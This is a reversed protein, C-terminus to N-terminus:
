SALAYDFGLQRPTAALDHLAASLHPDVTLDQRILGHSWRHRSRPHDWPPSDILPYWCVGDVTAGRSGAVAVEELVHRMWDGKTWGPHRRHHGPHGDHWSTEAIMVPLGYRRATKTIVKALATRANHPYYNVGVVDVVGAAMLADTAAFQREGIGTLPDTALLRVDPHHDRTVRAMLIALGVADEWRMGCLMPYISPENVPCLWLPRSPDACLAVHRAHGVPDDPPDFHNLDWIVDVGAEAAVAFRTTVDHRWPVGDRLRNLGHDRAIRYHDRMRDDPLHRTSSLLDHGNWGLRGCEFGGLMATM